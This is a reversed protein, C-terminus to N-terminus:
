IRWWYSFKIFYYRGERRWIGSDDEEQNDDIGFYFVTGPRYEYSLLVSNYLEKYYDNYDTILRLSLARTLQLNIRQSIINIEYEKEGGKERYFMNNRFNYFLRLNTIPKLTLRASISIRYGLYPNEDYYISDGFSYSIGGSLWSLPDTGISGRFSKKYFDIGEYREMEDSYSAMLYSQRWGNLFFSLQYEEDTLTNNFDYIRRYEFSPRISI